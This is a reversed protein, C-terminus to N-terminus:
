AREKADRPNIPSQNQQTVFRKKRNCISGFHAVLAAALVALVLPGVAVAEEETRV